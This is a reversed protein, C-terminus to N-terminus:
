KQAARREAEKLRPFVKPFLERSVVGEALVSFLSFLHTVFSHFGRHIESPPLTRCEDALREISIGEETVALSRIFPYKTSIRRITQSFLLELIAEGILESAIKWVDLLLGSYLDLIVDSPTNGQRNEKVPYEV